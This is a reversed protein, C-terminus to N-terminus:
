RRRSLHAASRSIRLSSLFCPKVGFNSVGSLQARVSGSKPMKAQGARMLLSQPLVIAGLIGVLDHSWSFTFHLPELRSARGLAKEIHVSGDMVREAKLAM